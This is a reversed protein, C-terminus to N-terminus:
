RGTTNIRSRHVRFDPPNEAEDLAYGDAVYAPGKMLWVIGAGIALTLVVTWHLIVLAICYIDLLSLDPADNGALLRAVLAPLALLLTGLWVIRPLRRLIDTELGAPSSRYGPLRGFWNM